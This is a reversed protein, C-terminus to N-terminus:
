FTGVIDDDLELEETAADVDAMEEDTSKEVELAAGEVVSKAVSVDVMSDDDESVENV